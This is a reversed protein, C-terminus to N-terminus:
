SKPQEKMDHMKMDCSDGGCCCCGANKASQGKMHDAKMNDGAHKKMDCSDGQCCSMACCSDGEKKQDTQTANQAFGMSSVALGLGLVLGSAFGKFNKMQIRRDLLDIAQIDACLSIGLFTPCVNKDIKELSLCEHRERRRVFM